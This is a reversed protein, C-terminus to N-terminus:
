IIGAETLIAIKEDETKGALLAQLKEVPSKGATKVGPKWAAAAEKIEEAPKGANIHRRIFAQLDIVLSARARSEIVDAGFMSIMGDLNDGFNYDVTVPEASIGEDPNSVKATVQM